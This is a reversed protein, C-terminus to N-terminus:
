IGSRKVGNGEQAAVMEPVEQLTLGQWVQFLSYIVREGESVGRLVVEQGGM